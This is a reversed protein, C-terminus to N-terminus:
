AMGYFVVVYAVRTDQINVMDDLLKEDSEQAITPTRLASNTPQREVVVWRQKISM